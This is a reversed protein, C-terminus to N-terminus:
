EDDGTSDLPPVRGAEGGTAQAVATRLQHRFAYRHTPTILLRRRWGSQRHIVLGRHSVDWSNTWSETALWNGERKPTGVRRIDTFPIRRVPLGLLRISFEARGIEYGIQARFWLWGGALFFLFGIGLLIKFIPSV